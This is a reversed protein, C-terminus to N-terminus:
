NLHFPFNRIKVVDFLLHLYENYFRNLLAVKQGSLHLSVSGKFIQFEFGSIDKVLPEEGRISQPSRKFPVSSGHLGETLERRRGHFTRRMWESIGSSM